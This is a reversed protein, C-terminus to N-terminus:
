NTIKRRLDYVHILKAFDPNLPGFEKLKDSLSHQGKIYGRNYLELVFGNGSCIIELNDITVNFTHNTVKTLNFGIAQARQAIEKLNDQSIVGEWRVPIGYAGRFHIIARSTKASEKNLALVVPNIIQNIDGEYQKNNFDLNSLKRVSVLPMLKNNGIIDYQTTVKVYTPLIQVQSKRHIAEFEGELHAQEIYSEWDKQKNTDWEKKFLKAIYGMFEKSEVLAPYYANVGFGHLAVGRLEAYHSVYQGLKKYYNHILQPLQAIHESQEKSLIVPVTIPDLLALGRGLKQSDKYVDIEMLVVYVTGMDQIRVDKIQIFLEDAGGEDDLDPILPLSHSFLDQIIVVVLDDIDGKFNFAEGRINQNIPYHSEVKSMIFFVEELHM